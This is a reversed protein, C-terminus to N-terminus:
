GASDFSSLRCLRKDSKVITFGVYYIQCLFTTSKALFDRGRNMPWGIGFQNRIRIEGTWRDLLDTAM